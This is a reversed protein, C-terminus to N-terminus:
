LVYDLVAWPMSDSEYWSGPELADPEVGVALAAAVRGRVRRWIFGGWGDCWVVTWRPTRGPQHRCVVWTDNPRIEYIELM